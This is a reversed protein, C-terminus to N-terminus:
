PHNEQRNAQYGCHNRRDNCDPGQEVVDEIEPEPAKETAPKAKKVAKRPKRPKMVIATNEDVPSWTTKTTAKKTTEIKTKKDTM